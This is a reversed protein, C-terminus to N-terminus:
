MTTGRRWELYLFFLGAGYTFFNFLGFVGAAINRGKGAVDTSKYNSFVALQVIFAVFLFFAWVATIAFEIFIWNYNPNIAERIGFM